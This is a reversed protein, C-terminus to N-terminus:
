KKKKKKKDQKAAKEEQKLMYKIFKKHTMIEISAYDFVKQWDPIAAILDPEKPIQEFAYKIDLILPFEEYGYSIIYDQRSDMVVLYYEFDKIELETDKKGM